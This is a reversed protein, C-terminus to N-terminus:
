NITVADVLGDHYKASGYDRVLNFFEESFLLKNFGIELLIDEIKMELIASYLLTETSTEGGDQTVEVKCLGTSEDESLIKFQRM